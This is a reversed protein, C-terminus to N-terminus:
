FHSPYKEAMVKLGNKINEENLELVKKDESYYDVLKISGGYLPYYYRIPVNRDTRIIKKPEIFELDKAWYGIGNEIGECILDAIRNEEIKFQIDYFIKDM